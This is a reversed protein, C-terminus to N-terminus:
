LPAPRAYLGRVEYCAQGGYRHAEIEKIRDGIPQAHFPVVKKWECENAFIPDGSPNIWRYQWAVPEAQCDPQADLMKRLEGTALIKLSEHADHPMAGCDLAVLALQMATRQQPTM